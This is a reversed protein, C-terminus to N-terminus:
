EGAQAREAIESRAEAPTSPAARRYLASVPVEESLLKHLGSFQKYVHIFRPAQQDSGEFERELWDSWSEGREKIIRRCESLRRGIEVICQKGLRRIADAHETLAADTPITLATTAM